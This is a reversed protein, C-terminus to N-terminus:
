RNDTPQQDYDISTSTLQRQVFLLFNVLEPTNTSVMWFVFVYTLGLIYTYIEDVSWGYSRISPLQQYIKMILVYFNIMAGSIFVLWCYKLYYGDRLNSM